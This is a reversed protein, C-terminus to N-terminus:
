PALSSLCDLSEVRLALQHSLAVSAFVAGAFNRPGLALAEVVDAFEDPAEVLGVLAEESVMLVDRVKEVKVLHRPVDVFEPRLPLTDVLLQSHVSFHYMKTLGIKKVIQSFNGIEVSLCFGHRAVICISTLVPDVHGRNKTVVREDGVVLEPVDLGYVGDRDLHM